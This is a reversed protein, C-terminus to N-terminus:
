SRKSPDNSQTNMLQTDIYPELAFRRPVASRFYRDILSINANLVKQLPLYNTLLAERNQGDGPGAHVIKVHKSMRANRVFALAGGAYWVELGDPFTQYWLDRVAKDGIGEYESPRFFTVSETADNKYAEGSSSSAQVALRVNIRAMRDIQESGSGSGSSTIEDRIWPYKAKLLNASVEHAYRMAGMEDEEDAMLPVKWELKGGVITVERRAPVESEEQGGDLETEPTVGDPEPAGYVEEKANPTETGWRTQDAVTYTLCGVRGDTCMLTATRKVVGKLDGQHAYAELFKESEEAASQDQPSDDDVPTVTVGPVERSLLATIKRSRAGFVNCSFLKM